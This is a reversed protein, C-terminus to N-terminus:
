PRGGVRLGNKRGKSRYTRARKRKFAGRKIARRLARCEVETLMAIHAREFPVQLIEQLRQYAINRRWGGGKWLRDFVEHAAKRAQRLAYSAPTGM